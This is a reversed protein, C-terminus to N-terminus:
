LGAGAWPGGALRKYPQFVCVRARARVCVCVCVLGPHSSLFSDEELPSEPQVLFIPCASTPIRAKDSVRRETLGAEALLRKKRKEEKKEREERGRKDRREKKKKGKSRGAKKEETQRKKM